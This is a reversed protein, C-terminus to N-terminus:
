RLLHDAVRLANAAITLAPNVGGSTPFFSGDAVYLNDVGHARNWRDLVSTRPDDGFRCTGCVHGMAPRDDTGRARIPWFPALAEGALRRFEDRRRADDRSLRYRMALRVRGDAGLGESWVLNEACPRDELITALIPQRAFTNWVPRGLPGMMRWVNFGPRSRLYNLPGAAGFSQVSGLRGGSEGCFDTFGIEKAPENEKVRPARTLVFLDIGHRMLNRGVQGSENALGTQQLLVPTLLAGAALVFMKARLM